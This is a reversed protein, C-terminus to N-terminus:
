SRGCAEDGSSRWFEFKLEEIICAYQLPFMDSTSIISFSYVKSNEQEGQEKETCICTSLM